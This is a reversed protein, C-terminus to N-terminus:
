LTEVACLQKELASSLYTVGTKGKKIDKLFFFILGSKKTKFDFIKNPDRMLAYECEYLINIRIRLTIYSYFPMGEVNTGVM